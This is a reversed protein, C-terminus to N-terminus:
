ESWFLTALSNQNRAEVAALLLWKNTVRNNFGDRYHEKTEYNYRTTCKNKRVLRPNIPSRLDSLEHREDSRSFEQGSNGWINSRKKYERKEEEIIDMIYVNSMSM